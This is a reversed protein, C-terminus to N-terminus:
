ASVDRILKTNLTELISFEISYLQSASASSRIIVDIIIQNLNMYNPSAKYVLTVHKNSALDQLINKGVVDQEKENEENEVIPTKTVTTTTAENEDKHKKKHKKIKKSPEKTEDKSDTNGVHLEKLPEKLKSTQTSTELWFDFDDEKFFGWNL